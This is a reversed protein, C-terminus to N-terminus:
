DLFYRRGTFADESYDLEEGSGFLLAAFLGVIDGRVTASQLHVPTWRAFVEVVPRM